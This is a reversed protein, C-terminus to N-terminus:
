PARDESREPVAGPGPEPRSRDGRPDLYRRGAELGEIIEPLSGLVGFLGIIILGHGVRPHTHTLDDILTKWTESLGILLLVIGKVLNTVPNEVFADIARAVRVGRDSM